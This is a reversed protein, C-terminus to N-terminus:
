LKRLTKITVATRFGNTLARVEDAESIFINHYGYVIYRLLELSQTFKIQGSPLGHPDLFYLYALTGDLFSRMKEVSVKEWTRHNRCNFALLLNPFGKCIVGARRWRSRIRSINKTKPKENETNLFPKLTPTLLQYKHDDLSHSSDTLATPIHSQKSPWVGKIKLM